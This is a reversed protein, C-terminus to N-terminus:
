GRRFGTARFRLEHRSDGYMTFRRHNTASTSSYDEGVQLIHRFGASRILELQSPRGDGNPLAYIETEVGLKDTFYELCARADSRVYEDDECALTAHEFSHAGLEHSDAIARVDARGMMPTPKFGDMRETQPLLLKALSKQEAMPKNKLFQSLRHGFRERGEAPEVPGFGPVDFEALLPEPAKGVFDQVLVNLPPLGSEICAPIVNHNSRVGHRKLIPAAHEAFDLYGDDFSIIAPPKDARRFDALEAFTILTFNRNLFGVVDDFLEPAITRYASGDPPAVRHFNTITLRDSDALRSLRSRLLAPNGLIKFAASKVLANV